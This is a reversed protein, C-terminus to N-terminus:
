FRSNENDRDSVKFLLGHIKMQFVTANKNRKLTTKATIDISIKCKTSM